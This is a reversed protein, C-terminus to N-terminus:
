FIAAASFGIGRLYIMIIKQIITLIEHRFGDYVFNFQVIKKM